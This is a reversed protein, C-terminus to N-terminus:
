EHASLVHLLLEKDTEKKRLNETTVSIPYLREGGLANNLFIILYEVSIILMIFSEINILFMNM